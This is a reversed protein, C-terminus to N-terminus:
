ADPDEERIEFKDSWWVKCADTLDFAAGALLGPHADEPRTGEPVGASTLRELLDGFMAAGYETGAERTAIEAHSTQQHVWDEVSNIELEREPLDRYKSRHAYWASRERKAQEIATPGLGGRELKRSLTTETPSDAASSPGLLQPADGEEANQKLAAELDERTVVRNSLHCEDIVRPREQPSAVVIQSWDDNRITDRSAAEVLGVAINLATLPKLSLGMADVAPAAFRTAYAAEIHRRSPTPPSITLKPLFRNMEGLNSGLRDALQQRALRQVDMDTAWLDEAAHGHNSEFCCHLEENALFTNFLHKLKGDESSLSSITWPPRHVERHKISVAEISQGRRIVLFDEHWECILTCDEDASVASLLRSAACCHQYHYRDSTEAGSDETPKGSLGGGPGIVDDRTPGGYIFCDERLGFAFQLEGEAFGERTRM